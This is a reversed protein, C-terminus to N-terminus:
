DLQPYALFRRVLDADGSVAVAQISRRRWLVLLLDAATGRVSASAGTTEPPSSLVPMAGEPVDVLWRVGADAAELVFSGRLTSPPQGARPIWFDFFGAVGDAALRPPIVMPDGLANTADWAHMVAEHALLRPIGDATRGEWWNWATAASPMRSLTDVTAAVEDLVFPELRGDGPREMGFGVPRPELRAHDVVDAWFHMVCGVHFGLDRLRWLPCSPVPQNPAAQVAHAVATGNEVVAALYEERDV